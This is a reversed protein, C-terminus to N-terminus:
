GGHFVHQGDVRPWAIGIVRQNTQVLGGLM